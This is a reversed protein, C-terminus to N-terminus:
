IENTNTNIPIYTNIPIINSQYGYQNTQLYQNLNYTIPNQM